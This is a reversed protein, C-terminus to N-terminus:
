RTERALVLLTRAVVECGVGIDEHLVGPLDAVLDGDRRAHAPLPLREGPESSDTVKVLLQAGRM